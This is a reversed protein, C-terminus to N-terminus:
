IAGGGLTGGVSPIHISLVGVARPSRAVIGAIDNLRGACHRFILLEGGSGSFRVVGFHL